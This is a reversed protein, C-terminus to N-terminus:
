CLLPNESSRWARREAFNTHFRLKVAMFANCFRKRRAFAITTCDYLPFRSEIKYRLRKPRRACRRRACRLPHLLLAANTGSRSACAIDESDADAKDRQAAADSSGFHRNANVSPEFAGDAADVAACQRKDARVACNVAPRAFIPAYFAARRCRLQGSRGFRFRLRTRRSRRRPPRGTTSAGAKAFFASHM